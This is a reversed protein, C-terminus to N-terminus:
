SQPNNQPNKSVDAANNTRDTVIGPNLVFGLYQQQIEATMVQVLHEPMPYPSDITFCPEGTCSAFKGVEEPDEFVGEVTVFKLDAFNQVYIRGNAYYARPAKGTWRRHKALSAAYRTSVPISEGALTYVTFFPVAFLPEPLKQTRLIGLGTDVGLADCCEAPDACELPLCSVTQVAAHLGWWLREGQMARSREVEMKLLKARGTHVWFAIQRDGFSRDDSSLGRYQINRINYILERLTAM